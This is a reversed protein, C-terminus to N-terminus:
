EAFRGAEILHKSSRPLYIGHDTQASRVARTRLSRKLTKANIARSPNKQNFRGIKEIVDDLKQTDNDRIGEAYWDLLQGHRDNIGSQQKKVASRAEYREGARSPSFGLAQAVEEAATTNEIIPDGKYTRIGEEHYRASRAFDRVFKPVMKEFGREVHGEAISGAGSWVNLFLAGIPGAAQTMYHIAEQKGTLDRDPTRLWLEDLSVRSHLDIPTYANVPGKAIAEGVKAGFTDALWNRYATKSDYPEDEDDFALDLASFIVSALPLGLTGAALAHQALIGSLTNRAQKRVEASEGKFSQSFNRLLAYKMSNIKHEPCEHCSAVASINLQADAGFKHGCRRCKVTLVLLTMTNKKHMDM